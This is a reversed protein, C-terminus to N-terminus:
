QFRSGLLPQNYQYLLENTMVLGQKSDVCISIIVDRKNNGILIYGAKSLINNTDKLNLDLALCLRILKDKTFKDYKGNLLKSLYAEDIAARACIERQSLDSRFAIQKRIENVVEPINRMSKLERDIVSTLEDRELYISIDKSHNLCLNDDSNLESKDIICEHNIFENKTFVNNSKKIVEFAGAIPLIHQAINKMKSIKNIESLTKDIGITKIKEFSEKTILNDFSLKEILKSSQVNLPELDFGNKGWYYVGMIELLKISVNIHHKLDNKM